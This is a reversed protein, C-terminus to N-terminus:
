QLIKACYYMGFIETMEEGIGFSVMNDRTARLTVDNVGTHKTNCPRYRMNQGSPQIQSPCSTDNESENSGMQAGVKSESERDNERRGVEDNM